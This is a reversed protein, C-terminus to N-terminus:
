RFSEVMFDSPQGFQCISEPVTFVKFQFDILEGFNRTYFLQLKHCLGDFLLRKQPHNSLVFVFCRRLCKNKCSYYNTKNINDVFICIDKACDKVNIENRFNKNNTDNENLNYYKTNYVEKYNDLEELVRSSVLRYDAHNYVVEGGLKQLLRYYGQATSRKFFSDSSRDNRVGYVIECGDHYAKVMENMEEASVEYEFDAEAVKIVKISEAKLDVIIVGPEKDKKGEPYYWYTLKDETREHLEYAVM